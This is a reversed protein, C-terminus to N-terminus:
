GSVSLEALAEIVPLHHADLDELQSAQAMTRGVILIRPAPLSPAFPLDHLTTAFSQEGSTSARSLLICPTDHQLGAQCLRSALLELDDGPMYAIVTSDPHIAAPWRSRAGDAQSGSLLIVCSSLRRDTLSAGTSAAAGLAATIGPVVEFDIGSERLAEIEEGARGFILPDGGKLRVVTLGSRAYRVMLANIEAQSIAKAGCRKGVSVIRATPAVRRLIEPTVLADPLVVDASQLIRLAKLTLLEPDGPGAGVLYVKANMM